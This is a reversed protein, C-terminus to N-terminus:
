LYSDGIKHIGGNFTEDKSSFKHAVRKGVTEHDLATPITDDHDVISPYTYYVPRGISKYYQGVRRDYAFIPSNAYAISPIDETPIAIGVGWLLTNFTLWSGQRTEAQEVAELVSIKYPRTTGVYFSILTRRPVDAIAQLANKIFNDAIIADDQLIILYDTQDDYSLLACKGTTWEDRNTDTVITAEVGQKSLQDSLRLAQKRREPVTMIAISVQSCVM